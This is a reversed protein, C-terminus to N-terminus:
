GNLIDSLLTHFEEFGEKLSITKSIEQELAIIKDLKEAVQGADKQELASVQDLKELIHESNQETATLTKQINQDLKIVEETKGRLEDFGQEM